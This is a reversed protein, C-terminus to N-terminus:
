KIITLKKSVSNDKFSLTVTYAGQQLRSLNLPHEVNGIPSNKIESYVIEGLANYITIAVDQRETVNYHIKCIDSTPNPFLSLQVEEASFEKIGVTTEPDLPKLKVQEVNLVARQKTDANYETLVGILYINNPTYRFEGSAPTPLVYSYNKSFSQGSAILTSPITGLLGYSGDAIHDIVYQHKYENANMLYTTPDLYSGIQYYPSSPTSYLHSHQNWNNDTNDNTPGFVNNEKVYLNLRYDGKVDGVFNASVTVDIQKTLDNYILNTFTVTAPVKMAQRQAVYTNWNAKDIGVTQNSSFYYQDIAASPFGNAYDAILTAGEIINMNDNDHIAAVIVNTNTSAISSLTANADPCWGCWAGTYEELLIKKAPVSSSLTIGGIVTDNAHLQDTQANLASVWIKLPYYAAISSIFPTTFTLQKSALYQIPTSLIQTETVVPNTGVQYNITINSIPTHGNNKFTAIISNNLNTTSYKYVDNSVAVGDFANALNEVIIDDIWLQYKDNSNNKFAIRINQGAYASLSVGHSQWSSNEGNTSFLKNALTFDGIVPTTFTNTTVYIEYGDSNSADPAMAEWILVTNAAINNITPTILWNDATSTPKLWSTSVAFTDAINAAKYTLWAKLKQGNARFPYNGTLTDAIKNGNNITFMGNSVDSYLYTQTGTNATYTGTNLSLNNFRETYLVQSFSSLVSFLGIVSFFIKKLM